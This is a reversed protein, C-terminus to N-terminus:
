QTNCHCTYPHVVSGASVIICGGSCYVSDLTGGAAQVLQDAKLVRVQERNLALKAKPKTKKM